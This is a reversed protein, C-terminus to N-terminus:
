VPALRLQIETVLEDESTAGVDRYVEISPEDSPSRVSRPLWNVYLRRYAEGLIHYPGHHIVTAYEGAPASRWQVADGLQARDFGNPVVLCADYRIRHAPVMEPDDHSIGIREAGRLEPARRDVLSQLRRWARWVTQYSGVHRICTLTRPQLAKLDVGHNNDRPFVLAPAVQLPPPAARWRARFASPSESFRARFVRGFADPSAYGVARAIQAIQITSSRLRHAAAELRVSRVYEVVPMGVVMTFLRHFHFSSICAERALAGLSLDGDLHWEVYLMARLLRAEITAETADNLEIM